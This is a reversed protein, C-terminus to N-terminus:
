EKALRRGLYFNYIFFYIIFYLFYFIFNYFVIFIFLPFSYKFLYKSENLIKNLVVLSSCWLYSSIYSGFLPIISFINIIVTIGWYSMQGWCLCYGLFSVALSCFWIFLGSIWIWNFSNFYFYLLSLLTFNLAAYDLFPYLFCILLVFSAAPLGLTFSFCWDNFSFLSFTFCYITRVILSFLFVLLYFCFFLILIFCVLYFTFIVYNSNFIKIWSRFLKSIWFFSFTIFNFLSFFNFSSNKLKVSCKSFSIQEILKLRIWTGRLWHLLIFCM